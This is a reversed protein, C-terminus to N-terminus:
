PPDLRMGETDISLRARGSPFLDRVRDPLQLRGVDDILAIDHERRASYSAALGRRTM